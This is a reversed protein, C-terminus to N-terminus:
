AHTGLLWEKSKSSFAGSRMSDRCALLGPPAVHDRRPRLEADELARGDPLVRHRMVRHRMVRHRLVRHRMSARAGSSVHPQSREEALRHARQAQVSEHM